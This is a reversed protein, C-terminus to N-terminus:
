PSRFMELRIYFSFGEPPNSKKVLAYGDETLASFLPSKSVVCGTNYPGYVSEDAFVASFNYNCNVLPSTANENYAMSFAYDATRWLDGSCQKPLLSCNWNKVSACAAGVAAGVDSALAERDAVCASHPDWRAWTPGRSLAGLADAFTRTSDAAAFTSAFKVLGSDDDSPVRGGMHRIMRRMFTAMEQADGPFTKRVAMLGEEDLPVKMPSPLCLKSYDLGPGGYANAVATPMLAGTSKDAMPELCYASVEDGFYDFKAFSYNTRLGFMGFDMESGGKDYRVQYEFFSVGQLLPTEEAIQLIAKLDDELNIDPNPCHYEQIVVPVGPFSAEYDDLFLPRIDKAPNATNFSNTFRTNYFETLDNKAIYGYAVPDLFAMRLEEMQGLSPKTQAAQCAACIGFSFTVTLNILPGTVGAEAEADLIGDVASIIGKAFSKPEGIGPLKLDPENIVIVQYLGPHYEASGEALFGKQLMMTYQEKVQSYCDFATFHMCNDLSQTYPWDSLGVIAGMGLVAVQDLFTRHINEPNNGYLRVHNAGLAKMVELDGRYRAGWLPKASPAMFDDQHICISETCPVPGYSIGKLVEAPVQVPDALLLVGVSLLSPRWPPRRGASIWRM